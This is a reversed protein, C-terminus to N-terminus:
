VLNNQFFIKCIERKNEPLLIYPRILIEVQYSYTENKRFVRRRRRKKPKWLRNMQSYPREGYIDRENQNEELLNLFESIAQYHRNEEQESVLASLDVITIGKNELLKKEPASLTEYVM